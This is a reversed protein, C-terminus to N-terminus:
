ARHHGREREGEHGIVEHGIVEHGIVEHQDAEREARTEGFRSELAQEVEPEDVVHGRGEDDVVAAVVSGAGAGPVSGNRVLLEDFLSRYHLLAQRLEDTGALHRQSREHIRHAARYSEILGPHDVSVLDAQTEFDDVPYGRDRMVRVVLSEADAVAVSPEDVFRAQVEHWEKTYREYSADSLPRIRLRERRRERDLLQAEGKRRGGSRVTRDYEPGFRDRLQERRRRRARRRATMAAIAGFVMVVAVAILVWVWADM